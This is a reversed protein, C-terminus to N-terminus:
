ASATAPEELSQQRSGCGIKATWLGQVNYVTQRTCPNVIGVTKGSSSERWSGGAYYKYAGTNARIDAYIGSAGAAEGAMKQSFNGILRLFQKASTKIITV